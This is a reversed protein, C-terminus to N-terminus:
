LRMNKLKKIKDILRYVYLLLAGNLVLLMTYDPLGTLFVVVTTLVFVMFATIWYNISWRALARKTRSDM